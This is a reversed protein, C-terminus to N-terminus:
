NIYYEMDSEISPTIRIAEGSNGYYTNSKTVSKDKKTEVELYRKEGPYNNDYVGIYYINPNEIDQILSIANIAHLGGEFNSVIVPADKDNMRSELINIFAPGNKYEITESGFKERLFLQFNSSSSYHVSVNQKIFAAYLANFMEKDDGDIKNSTQMKDENLLIDVYTDYQFGYRNLQEESDLGSRLPKTFEYIGSNDIHNKHEPSYIMSNDEIIRLDSPNEEGFYQFGFVYKLENTKLKYNYLNDYNEFYTNHLNYGYSKSDKAMISNSTLPLLKKYYLQAFTAMGYCHGGDSLNSSYNGFSFGDRNVIFGSDAILMGDIKDDGDIDVLDNNLETGISEFLESLGSANSSAFFRGGTGNSINALQTNYLGDAFGIACIKINKDLAKDIIGKTSGSLTSDEGDTLIVIYNNESDSNFENMGRNLANRINTGERNTIFQGNMNNLAQKIANTESGIPLANSYDGRFESLGIKYNKDSLKTVLESTLTFRRGSSDYGGFVDESVEKGTFSEYQEKTYMSWSNDLVFLIQAAYKESVLKSDGVVYNSFHDLKAEVTKNEKDVLTEIKEYSSDELNVYYLSLNDENLDSKELEETTYAITVIAEDIEGETHFTYLKDILGVKNSLKTNERMESITSPINGRGTIKIKVNETDIDYTLIREGDKIGDNYTSALLPNLGLEIEDYDNLGDNDTDKNNPDTKSVFIEYKDELGDMDSDALMPNTKYEKEEKNTLGDYDLDEDSDLDIDSNMFLETKNVDFPVVYFEKTIKRKKYTATIECKGTEESLDWLLELGNSEIEGFDSYYKIQEINKEDSFDVGLKVKTQTIYQLNNDVYNTDWSLKSFGYLYNFLSILMIFISLCILVISILKKHKSMLSKIKRIKSGKEKNVINNINNIINGCNPCYDMDGDIRNGCNPCFM